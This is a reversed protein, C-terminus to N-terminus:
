IKNISDLCKAMFRQEKLSIKFFVKLNLRILDKSFLNISFNDLVLLSMLNIM